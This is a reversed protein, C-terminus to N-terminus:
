DEWKQLNLIPQSLKYLALCLIYDLTVYRFHSHMFVSNCSFTYPVPFMTNWVQKSYISESYTNNINKPEASVTIDYHMVAIDTVYTVAKM